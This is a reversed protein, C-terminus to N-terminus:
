GVGTAGHVFTRLRRRVTAVPEGHQVQIAASSVVGGVLGAVGAADRVGADRLASVLPEALAEHLEHITAAMETPIEAVHYSGQPFHGAVAADLSADVYATLRAAPTRATRMASELGDLTRRFVEEVAAGVLAGSSPYYQYVSSRALGALAAVAAPTVATTGDAGLLEAAAAVIDARRRAHHEVVTPADIKPM